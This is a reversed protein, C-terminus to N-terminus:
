LSRIITNFLKSILLEIILIRSQKLFFYLFYKSKMSM